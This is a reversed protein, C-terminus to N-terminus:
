KARALLRIMYEEKTLKGLKALELDQISEPSLALGELALSAMAQRIDPSISKNQQTDADHLM